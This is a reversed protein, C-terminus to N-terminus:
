AKAGTPLPNEILRGDAIGKYFVSGFAMASANLVSHQMAAVAPIGEQLLRPALDM